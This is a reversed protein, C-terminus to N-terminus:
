QQRCYGFENMFGNLADQEKYKGLGHEQVYDKIKNRDERTFKWLQTIHDCSISGPVTYDYQLLGGFLSLRGTAYTMSRRNEMARELVTAYEPLKWVSNEVVGGEEPANQYYKESIFRVYGYKASRVSSEYKIDPTTDAIYVTVTKRSTNGISDTVKYTITASGAATFKKWEEDDTNPITLKDTIDGDEVDDATATTLLEEVTIRGEQAEKLTFYRDKATIEPCDDWIAYLIVVDGDVTSLNSVIDQNSFEITKTDATRNWGMFTSDGWDTTRVFANDPLTVQEDYKVNIDQIKGSTSGNGDFHITYTIPKIEGDWIAYMVTNQTLNYESGTAYQKGDLSNEAWATQVYSDIYGEQAELTHKVAQALTVKEGCVNTLDYANTYATVTVPAPMQSEDAGNLNYELTVEAAYVAYFIVNSSITITDTTIENEKAEAANIDTNSNWGIVSTSTVGDWAYDRIDPVTIVVDKTNNYRTGTVTRVGYSDVFKATLDGSYLAYLTVDEQPMVLSKIAETKSSDTNWGLFDYETKQAAPSLDVSQGWYYDKTVPKTSGDSWNGGNESVNYTVTYRNRMYYVQLTIDQTVTAPLQGNATKTKESDYEYGEYDNLVDTVNIEAGSKYQKTTSEHPTAPYKGDTDMLFHEVTVTYNNEISDTTYKAYLKTNGAPTYTDGAGGVRSTLESDSYWGDFTYSITQGDFEISAKEAKPLTVSGNTYDAKVNVTGGNATLNKFSLAPLWYSAGNFTRGEDIGHERYHLIAWMTDYTNNTARLLDPNGNYYAAWNWTGVSWGDWGKVEGHSTQETLQENWGNFTGPADTNSSNIAATGGNTEYSVTYARKAKLFNYIRDYEYTRVTDTTENGNEDLLTGGDANYDVKYNTSTWEASLNITNDWLYWQQNDSGHYGSITINTGNDTSYGWLDLVLSSSDLSTCNGLKSCIYFYGNGAMKLTWLQNDGGHYAYQQVNAGASTGNVDLVKGSYNNKIVWYPVNNETKVYQFAFMQANGNVCDWIQVNAGNETSAANIDVSDYRGGCKTRITTLGNQGPMVATGDGAYSGATNMFQDKYVWNSGATYGTKKFDLKNFRNESAASYSQYYDEKNDAENGMYNVFRDAAEWQACFTFTGDARDGFWATDMAYQEGTGYIHWEEPQCENFPTWGRNDCFVAGDAERIVAWGKFVYGNKTYANAKLAFNESYRVTESPMYGSGGNSDYQVTYEPFPPYTFTLTMRDLIVTVDSKDIVWDDNNDYLKEIKNECGKYTLDETQESSTNSNIGSLDHSGDATFNFAAIGDCIIFSGEDENYWDGYCYQEAHWDSTTNVSMTYTASNVNRRVNVNVPIELSKSVNIPVNDCRDDPSTTQNYEGFEGRVTYDVKLTAQVTECYYGNEFTAAQVIKSNEVTSIFILVCVALMLWVYQIKRKM